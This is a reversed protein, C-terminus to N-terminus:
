PSLEMAGAGAPVLGHGPHRHAHRSRRDAAAPDDAPPRRSGEDETHSRLCDERRDRNLASATLELDSDASRIFLAIRGPDICELEARSHVGTGRAASIEAWLMAPYGSAPREDDVCRMVRTTILVGISAAYVITWFSEGFVRNALLVCVVVLPAGVGYAVYRTAVWPFTIGPPGLWRSDIRRLVDDTTIRM